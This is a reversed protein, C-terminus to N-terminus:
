GGVGDGRIAELKGTGVGVSADTGRAELEFQRGRALVSEIARCIEDVKERDDILFEVVGILVEDEDDGVELSIRCRGYPKDPQVMECNVDDIAEFDIEERATGFPNLREISLIGDFANFDSVHLRAQYGVFLAIAGLILGVGVSSALFTFQSIWVILLAVMLAVAGRVGWAFWPLYRIILRRDNQEVIEM